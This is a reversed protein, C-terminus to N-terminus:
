GESSKPQKETHEPASTRGRAVRVRAPRLVRDGLKFGRTIEEIIDGEDYGEVEEHTLAEHMEADFKCGVAEIAEVGLQELVREFRRLVMRMGEVWPHDAIDDPINKCALELDDFLPLIAAIAEAYAAGSLSEKEEQIRKRYNAFSARERQWGDLYQKVEAQLNANQQRLAENEELIAKMRDYISEENDQAQPQANEQVEGEESALSQKPQESV